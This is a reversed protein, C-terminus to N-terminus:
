EATFAPSKATSTWPESGIVCFTAAPSTSTWKGNGPLNPSNRGIRRTYVRSSAVEGGYRSIVPSRSWRGGNSLHSFATKFSTTRRLSRQVITSRKSHLGAPLYKSIDGSDHLNASPKCREIAVRRRAGSGPQNSPLDLLLLSGGLPSGDPTEVASCPDVALIKYPGTWNTALKAKLINADTNAKVDQRTSSASNYM